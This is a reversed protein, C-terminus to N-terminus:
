ELKKTIKKSTNYPQIFTHSPSNLGLQMRRILKLDVLESLWNYISRENKGFYKAITEVSHFSEGTFNDSHIGLYVYLKLANGSIKKLYGNSQFGNFIIFYGSTQLNDKKWYQYNKRDLKAQVKKLLPKAQDMIAGKEYVSKFTKKM